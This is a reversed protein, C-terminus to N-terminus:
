PVLEVRGLIRSAVNAQRQDATVFVVEVGAAEVHRAVALHIADASSLEPNSVLLDRAARYDDPEIDLLRVAGLLATLRDWSAAAVEPAVGRRLKTNVISRSEAVALLCAATPQSSIIDLVRDGGGAIDIARGLASTDLIHVLMA